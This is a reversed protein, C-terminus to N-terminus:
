NRVLNSVTIAGHEIIESRTVEPPNWPKELLNKHKSIEFTRAETHTVMKMM